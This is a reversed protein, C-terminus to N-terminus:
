RIDCEVKKSIREPRSPHRICLPVLEETAVRRRDAWRCQLRHSRRDFVQVDRPLRWPRQSFDGSLEIWEEPSPNGIISPEAARGQGSQSIVDILFERGPDPSLELAKLGMFCTGAEEQSLQRPFIRPQEYM